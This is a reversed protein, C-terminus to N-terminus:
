GAIFDLLDRNCREQATVFIAHSQGEYVVLRSRPIARATARGCLELPATTDADGHLILTPMTFATMDPRFDTRPNARAMDITAELSARMALGLGWQVMAESVAVGPLGLGFFGPVGAALTGPRDHALGAVLGDFLAVDLGGPNDDRRLLCPTTPGLLAVRAVREGGHRSLYRAIEGAGMSHGVLTVGRLDLSNMLAALDDGFTDFDYGRGPQSSRGCGRRDHAICRLGREVLHTMQYEWMDGGLVWGHVFVVPQGRGWDNYHIQTADRTTIFPM